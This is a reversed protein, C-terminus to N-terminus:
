SSGHLLGDTTPTTSGGTGGDPQPVGAGTGNDPTISAAPPSRLDAPSGAFAPVALSVAPARVLRLSAAPRAAQTADPSLASSLAFSVGFLAVAGTVIALITAPRRRGRPSVPAAAPPSQSLTALKGALRDLDASWDDERLKAAQINALGRIEPPLQDPRPREAGYVLVPILRLRRRLAEAIEERVFDNPADLRRAGDADVSDLWRDGILVLMADSNEIGDQIGEPVNEGDDISGSDLFFRADPLRTALSEHIGHVVKRTDDWRYSIFVQPPPDRIPQPSASRRGFSSRM